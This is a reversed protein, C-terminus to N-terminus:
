PTKIADMMGKQWIACMEDPLRGALCDCWKRYCEEFRQMRSSDLWCTEMKLHAPLVSRALQICADRFHLSHTRATWGSFVLLVTLQEAPHFFSKEVVYVAECQRNLECLYRCLTNAWLRLRMKDDSRGLNMRLREERGRFALIWEKGDPVLNYNDLRIGERFLSGSMWNSNFIPLNRRLDEYRSLREEEALPAEDPEVAEVMDDDFLSDDIMASNMLERVRRGKEGDGMLILNHGPLINGVSVDEDSNFGLLLSLYRKVASVNNGGYTGFIDVGCSRNCVLQPLKRLFAMRSKLREDDTRGYCDFERLWLPSSDTGYLGDLFDLYKNKLEYVNRQRDRRKRMNETGELLTPIRSPQEEDEISLLSKLGALEGLGREMLLDFLHLYANFNLGDAKVGVPTGVSFDNESRCYCAPLEGTVPYHQYVNRFRAKRRVEQTITADHMNQMDQEQMFHRMRLTSRLFYKAKLREKFEDVDAYVRKGRVKVVIDSLSDPIPLMYGDKFDTVARGETDKFWCTKIGKIGDLGNLRWYLERGTNKQIPIVARVDKVPGEYWSCPNSEQSPNASPSSELEVSGFLYQMATWYIQVLMETVNFGPFIELEAELTLKEPHCVAVKGINECLNRHTNLFRRVRNVIGAEDTFFPSLRLLFDYSCSDSYTTVDVNQVMPFRALIIRRYDDSTVPASPYIDSAPFFGYKDLSWTGDTDTLYDELDFGLRYDTETLAYNVADAVTMGPDHPNFDTWVKGSLRQLEALTKRQLITYLDDGDPRTIFLPRDAM